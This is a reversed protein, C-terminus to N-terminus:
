DANAVRVENKSSNRRESILNYLTPIIFLTLFASVILGGISVIGMPQRLEAGASGIGLALPLMGLVIAATSMIIPKLKTPCAELLAATKDKGQRRLFNTYDLLLIANNVVIGVLMIIAMMSVLNMTQGTLFLATIVGILALPVTGLILLPQFLNELIAALLMYTILIAILFARGMDRTTEQLMEADGGWSIDVGAPLDLDGITRQVSNVVSGLVYGEAPSASFQIVTFKNRHMMKSYGDTFRIDSFQALRYMEGESFVPINGIEEPTDVSEDTMMVRIDYEEGGERYTTSVIGEVAGRLSMALTYMNLGAQEMKARDPILTIEPKGSRISTTLNTLGDIQQLEGVLQGRYQELSNIDQGQLYFEIPYSGSGAGMGIAQVRIIANPVDSLDRIFLNAIEDDSLKRTNTDVLKIDMKAMHAGQDLEGISGLTTVMHDVQPYQQIRREIDTMLAATKDLNYGQPLEVEVSLSGQDMEPAFEFGVQGGLFLSGIFLLVVVAVLIIGRSKRAFLIELARRYGKEWSRFVEELRKGLPHKKRDYEPLIRSALMPTVTFSVILSFITAFVVTLAFEKLFIGVMGRIMALPLFVAINTLTSALVATAIESTGRSSAELRTNGMGIHRFINELVVVSNTVLIGVSVSLGMLSMINKSFGATQLLVFTSIISIPMALAAIFTSRFDHLFFLLVGATLFIGLFVNLLTDNITSRIFVSHDNVISLNARSPIESRLLPLLKHVGDAIEVTNGDPAPIIRLLVVNEDHLKSKNDFYVTRERVDASTDSVRAIQGLKKSGFITPVELEELAKVSRLHGQLRVAFEQSRQKFQGGPMEINQMALIQSLQELSLSHAFVVRNDIEVKIERTEGGVVEVKAVGKIQSLRDKVRKDAVETLDRMEMNGSLLIDIIPMANIDVKEVIPLEASDPLDNLISDVKDKIDQNAVNVDKDLEFEIFIIAVNEMAYSILTDIGSVTSVEDEIKKIIETEVEQPSAGPYIVQITVFPLDISPMLNLPINFFALLGFLVVALLIMSVMIPRKISLDSLFM